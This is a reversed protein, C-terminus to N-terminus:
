SWTVVNDSFAGAFAEDIGSATLEHGANEEGIGPASDQSYKLSPLAAATFAADVAQTSENAQTTDSQLELTESSMAGQATDFRISALQTIAEYSASERDQSDLSQSSAVAMSQSSQSAAEHLKPQTPTTAATSGQLVLKSGVLNKAGNWQYLGVRHHSLAGIVTM